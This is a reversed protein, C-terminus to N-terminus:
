WSKTPFGNNKPSRWGETTKGDWLLTWGEAKERDTLTNPAAASEPKKCSTSCSNALLALVGVVLCLAAATAVQLKSKMNKIPQQFHNAKVIIVPRGCPLCPKM